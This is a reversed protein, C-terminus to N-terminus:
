GGISVPVSYIVSAALLPVGGIEFLRPSGTSEHPWAYDDAALRRIAYSVLGELSVIGADPEVRSAFAFVALRAQYFCPAKFSLWPDDWGLMLAPPEVADVPASMVPPDGEALPALATAARERLETLTLLSM